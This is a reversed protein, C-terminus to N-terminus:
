SFCRRKTHKVDHYFLKKGIAKYVNGLAHPSEELFLHFNIRCLAGAEGFQPAHAKLSSLLCVCWFRIVCESQLPTKEIVAVDEVQLHISIQFISFDCKGDKM